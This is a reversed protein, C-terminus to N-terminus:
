SLHTQSERQATRLAVCLARFQDKQLSDRCLLVTRKRRPEIFFQLILISPHVFTTPSLRAVYTKGARSVLRWKGAGNGELAIIAHPSRRLVQVGFQQWLSM